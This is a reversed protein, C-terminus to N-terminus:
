RKHILLKKKKEKKSNNLGSSISMSMMIESVSFYLFIKVMASCNTQQMKHAKDSQNLIKYSTNSFPTFHKLKTITIIHDTQHPGKYKTNSSNYCHIYWSGGYKQFNFFFDLINFFVLRRWIEMMPFM